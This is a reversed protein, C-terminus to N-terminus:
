MSCNWWGMSPRRARSRRRRSRASASAGRGSGPARPSGSWARAPGSAFARCCGATARIVLCSAQTESHSACGSGPVRRIRATRDMRTARGGPNVYKRSADVPQQVPLQQRGAPRESTRRRSRATSRGRRAPASRARYGPARRGAPTGGHSGDGTKRGAGHGPVAGEVESM